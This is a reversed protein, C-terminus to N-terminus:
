LAVELVDDRVLDGIKLIGANRDPVEIIEPAACWEPSCIVVSWTAKRVGPCKVRQLWISSGNSLRQKLYIDNM